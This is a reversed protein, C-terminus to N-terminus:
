PFEGHINKMVNDDIKLKEIIWYESQQNNM